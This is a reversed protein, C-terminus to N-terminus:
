VTAANKYTVLFTSLCNNINQSSVLIKFINNHIKKTTIQLEGQLNM